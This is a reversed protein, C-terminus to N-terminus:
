PRGSHWGTTPAPVDLLRTPLLLCSRQSASLSTTSAMWAMKNIVIRANLVFLIDVLVVRGSHFSLVADQWGVILACRLVCM